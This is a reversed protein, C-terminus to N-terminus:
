QRLARLTTLSFFHTDKKRKTESKEKDEDDVVLDTAYERLLAKLDTRVAEDRNKVVPSLAGMGDSDQM